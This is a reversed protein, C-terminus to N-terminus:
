PTLTAQTPPSDGQLIKKDVHSLQDPQPDLELFHTMQILTVRSTREVEQSTRKRQFKRQLLVLAVLLVLALATSVPTLIQSSSEEEPFASKMSSGKGLPRPPGAALDQGPTAQPDNDGQQGSDGVTSELDRDTSGELSAVEIDLTKFTWMGPALISGETSGSVRQQSVVTAEWAAQESVGVSPKITRITKRAADLAIRVRETEEGPWNGQTTTMKREDESVRARHTVSRRTGWVWADETTSSVSRLKSAPSEARTVTTTISGEVRSGMEPVIERSPLPTQREKASATIKRTGSTPAARDWESGQGLIQTAGSTWKNAAPSVTEFSTTVLEGPAPLATPVVDSPGASITLNMSFFLMDNRVGIGCRYLGVDDLSLQSLRVEFRGSHPFDALAVRGRYARHIYHNTSVITYCTQTPPGLRCWYKRQHRNVSLPAYHCQITVARGPAGSVLRPGKLANTASFSHAERWCLPSSSTLTKMACLHIRSTFSAAQPWRLHPGRHPPASSSGQLLYLVLLLPM